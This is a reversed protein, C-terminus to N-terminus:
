ALLRFSLVSATTFMIFLLQDLVSIQPVNRVDYLSTFFSHIIDRGFIVHNFRPLVMGLICLLSIISVSSCSLPLLIQKSIKIEISKCSVSFVCVCFCVIFWVSYFRCLQAIFVSHTLQCQNFFVLVVTRVTLAFHWLYVNHLSVCYIREVSSHHVNVTFFLKFTCLSSEVWMTCNYFAAMNDYM